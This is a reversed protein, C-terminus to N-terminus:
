GNLELVSKRRMQHFSRMKVKGEKKRAQLLLEPPVNKTATKSVESHQGWRPGQRKQKLGQMYCHKDMLSAM